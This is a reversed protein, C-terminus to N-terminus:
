RGPSPSCPVIDHAACYIEQILRYPTGYNINHGGLRAQVNKVIALTDATREDIRRTRAEQRDLETQLLTQHSAISQLNPQTRSAAPAAIANFAVLVLATALGALVAALVTAPIRITM